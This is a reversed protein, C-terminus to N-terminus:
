FSSKVLLFLLRTSLIHTFICCRDIKIKCCCCRNLGTHGVNIKIPKQEPITIPHTPMASILHVTLLYSYGNQHVRSSVRLLVCMCVSGSKIPIRPGGVNRSLLNITAPQTANCMLSFCLPIEKLGKQFATETM